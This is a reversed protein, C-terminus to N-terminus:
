DDPWAMRHDAPHPLNEPAVHAADGYGVGLSKPMVQAPHAEVRDQAAVTAATEGRSGGLRLEFLLRAGDAILRVRIEIEHGGADAFRPVGAPM